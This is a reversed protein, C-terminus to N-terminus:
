RPASNVPEEGAAARIDHRMALPPKGFTRLFARRMRERNAFGTERVIVEIPHRGEEILLRAAEVRLKEIAKAPSQGTEAVFARTFQRSSLNAANALDEVALRKQLNSRAFTLATQIRDSKPEMQLLASFQSQGGARRHYLVLKRAVARSVEVGVDNEILALMLDISATMGASTWVDGDEVYIRDEEVRIKPFQKQLQKAHSWHTTAKRGDLLGAEALTFAGICTSAVRRAIRPANRVFDLVAPTSAGLRAGGGVIVTDLRGEPFPETEVLAGVSSRVFGGNESLLRVDYRAEGLMKNAVEFVAMAAFTIIHFGEFLVFGIQQM